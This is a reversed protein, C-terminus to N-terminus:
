HAYRFVASAASLAHGGQLAKLVDERSLGPQLADPELDTAIITMVYHQPANGRPPCPGLWALGVTNKGAVFRGATPAASLDGEAFANVSAPIGYVIAHSVGLGSRGAQDDWLIVFSRTKDPVNRWALAPSVNQGLCNPNKAVNGAYKRNLMTNDAMGPSSLYFASAPVTPEMSACGALAATVVTTVMAFVSRTIM